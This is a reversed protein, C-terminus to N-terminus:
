PLSSSLLEQIVRSLVLVRYVSKNHRLHEESKKSNREKHLNRRCIQFLVQFLMQLVEGTQLVSNEMKLHGVEDVDKDLIKKGKYVRSSSGGTSSQRDGVYQGSARSDLFIFQLKCSVEM